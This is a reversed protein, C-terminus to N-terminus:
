EGMTISDLIRENVESRPDYILRYTRLPSDVFIFRRVKHRGQLTGEFRFEKAPYSHIVAESMESITANEANQSLFSQQGAAAKDHDVFTPFSVVEFYVASADPSHVHIRHMGDKQDKLVEVNDGSPSVSPYRMSYNHEADTHEILKQMVNIEGHTSM